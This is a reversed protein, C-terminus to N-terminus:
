GSKRSSPVPRTKADKDTVEEEGDVVTIADDRATEVPSPEGAAASRSSSSSSTISLETVHPKKDDEHQGDKPQGKEGM